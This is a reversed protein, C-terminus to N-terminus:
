VFHLDIINGELSGRNIVGETTNNEYFKFVIDIPPERGTKLCIDTLKEPEDFFPYFTLIGSSNKTFGVNIMKDLSYETYFIKEYKLTDNLRQLKQIIGTKHESM